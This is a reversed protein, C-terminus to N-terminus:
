KSISLRGCQSSHLQLVPIEEQGVASVPHCLSCWLASIFLTRPLYGSLTFAFSIVNQVSLRINFVSQFNMPTRSIGYWQHFGVGDSVPRCLWFWGAFVRLILGSIGLPLTAATGRSHTIVGAASSRIHTVIRISTEPSQYCTLSTNRLLWLYYQFDTNRLRERRRSRGRTLKRSCCVRLKIRFVM